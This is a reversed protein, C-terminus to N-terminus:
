HKALLAAAITEAILATGRDNPHVNSFWDMDNAHKDDDKPDGTGDGRVRFDWNGKETEAKMRRHVDAVLYGKAAALERAEKNYGELYENRSGGNKFGPVRVPDIWYGASHKPDLYMGTSFVIVCGPYDKELKGCLFELRKRFIEPAYVKGDNAAYNIAVVDVQPHKKLVKFYHGTTEDEFLPPVTHKTEGDKPGIYQGGRAENFVTWKAEPAKKDLAAKLIFELRQEGQHCDFISDGILLVTGGKSLDKAAPKPAEAARASYAALAFLVAPVVLVFLAKILM